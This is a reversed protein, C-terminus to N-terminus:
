KGDFKRPTLIEKCDPEDARPARTGVLLRLSKGAFKYKYPFDPNEGSRKLGSKKSAAPNIVPDDNISRFLEETIVRINAVHKGLKHIKAPDHHYYVGEKLGREIKIYSKQSAIMKKSEVLQKGVAPKSDIKLGDSIMWRKIKKPKVIEDVLDEKSERVPASKSTLLIIQSILSNQQQKKLFEFCTHSVVESLKELTPKINERANQYKYFVSEGEHFLNIMTFRILLSNYFALNYISEVDLSNGFVDFSPPKQSEFYLALALPVYYIFNSIIPYKVSFNLMVTFGSLLKESDSIKVLNFLKDWANVLRMVESVPINIKKRVTAILEKAKQYYEVLLSQMRYAYMENKAQATMQAFCKEIDTDTTLNLRDIYDAKLKRLFSFQYVDPLLLKIIEEEYSEFRHRLCINRLNKDFGYLAIRYMQLDDHMTKLISLDADPKFIEILTSPNSRM